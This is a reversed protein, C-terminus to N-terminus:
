SCSEATSVGYGIEEHADSLLEDLALVDRGPVWTCQYDATPVVYDPEFTDLYGAVVSRIDACRSTRPWWSPLRRGAPVIPNFIGGWLCTALRLVKLLSERDNPAVLFAIRLPRVSQTLTISAEDTSM